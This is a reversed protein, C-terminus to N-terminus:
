PAIFARWDNNSNNDFTGAGNQFVWDVANSRNAPVTVTITWMGPVNTGLLNTMTPTTVGQFNDFGHHFLVQTATALVSNSANYTVSFLGSPAPREPTWTVRGGVNVYFDKDAYTKDFATLNPDTFLFQVSNNTAPPVPIDLTWRGNNLFTMPILNTFPGGLIRGFWRVDRHGALNRVNQNFTFTVTAGTAPIPNPTWRALDAPNGPGAYAQYFEGQPNAQRVVSTWNGSSGSARHGYDLWGQLLNTSVQVGHQLENTLNEFLVRVQSGTLIVPALMTPSNTPPPLPLTENDWVFPSLVVNTAAADQLYLEINSAPSELVSNDNKLVYYKYIVSRPSRRALWFSDGFYPDTFEGGGVLSHPFEPEATSDYGDTSFVWERSYIGDDAVADGLTGDDVLTVGGVQWPPVLSGAFDGPIAQDNANFGRLPDSGQILVRSIGARNRGSLDLQFLVTTRERVGADGRRADAFLANYDVNTGPDRYPAAAAGLYDTVVLFTADTPLTLKRSANTAAFEALRVAEYTNTGTATLIGSYKYSLESGTGPPFVVDRHHWTGSLVALPSSTSPLFGFELPFLDGNIFFDNAGPSAGLGSDAELVFRVTLANTLGSAAPLMCIEILRENGAVDQINTATVLVVTGAAPLDNTLELVVANTGAMVVSGPADAGVRWHAPTTATLNNLPENLQVYVVRNSQVGSAYRIFPANEDGAAVDPLGDNDGDVVVDLYTDTTLLGDAWSANVSVQEPITDNANYAANPDNNHITAFLRLTAGQPVVEGGNVTGFRGGAGYLESWPIRAELGKLECASADSQAAMDVPTGVPSAGTGSDFLSDTNNTDPADIGDYRIRIINKFTGEVSAIQYDLGFPTAGGADSKRWGVDNFRIYNPLVGTWNTTTTAGTGAGPDVDLMVVLKDTPAAGQLMVYLYTADWTVFLNSIAVGAGFAGGGGTYSARLDAADYELPRGDLVPTNAPTAGAWLPLALSFALYLTKCKM